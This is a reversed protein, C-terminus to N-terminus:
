GPNRPIHSLVVRFKRGERLLTHAHRETVIQAQGGVLARLSQVARASLNEFGAPDATVLRLTYREFDHQIFQYQLISPEDKLARWVSRPHVTNGDPLPLLDETRGEVESIRRFTRGCACDTEPLRAALDGMRYNLLVTARNVLNTLVLEGQVGAPANAGATDVVRVHCLDEHLHFGTRQPCFFGIKFCEAATYRSYVPIGFEGEIFERAGPPLAEAIYMIMRPLHPRLNRAKLTRFFLDHWGGYGVLIDPREADMIAAIREVPEVVPVFRRRPRLPFLVSRRYFDIVRTFTSDPSGVYLESPRFGSGCREISISREREGFAINKWLTEFDHRIETASGTTGSSQFALNRGSLNEALFDRPRERVHRKDLLPLRDLDRAGRIDRPDIREAAFLERYWPVWQAAHRVLARIRRDRVAEIKDRSAFPLRKQGPLTAGVVVIRESM